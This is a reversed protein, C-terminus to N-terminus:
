FFIVRGINGIKKHPNEGRKKMEERIVQLKVDKSYGHWIGAVIRDKRKDSFKAYKPERDISRRVLEFWLRPPRVKKGKKVDRIKEKLPM